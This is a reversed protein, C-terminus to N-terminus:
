SIDGFLSGLDELNQPGQAFKRIISFYENRRKFAIQDLLIIQYKLLLNFKEEDVPKASDRANKIENILSEYESPNM